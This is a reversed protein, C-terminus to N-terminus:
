IEKKRFLGIALSLCVISLVISTLIPIVFEERVAEGNLIEIQRTTLVMPSNNGLIAPLTMLGLLTTTALIFLISIFPQRFLVCGLMLLSLYLIGIIWVLTAAFLTNSLLENPWYYDIYLQTVIYSIWYSISMVLVSVTFKSLIISTRSLGKTLIIDLTGKAYENSLTTSFIILIASMGLQSVNKYFQEWADLATPDSITIDLEPALLSLLQPMFRASMTSIIALFLFLGLTILLKYSRFYELIEKKTFAYYGIM